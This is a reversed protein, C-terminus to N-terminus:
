LLYDSCNKYQRHRDFSDAIKTKKKLLLAGSNKINSGACPLSSGKAGLASSPLGMQSHTKSSILVVMSM